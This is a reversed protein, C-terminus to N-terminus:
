GDRALEAIQASELVGQAKERLANLMARGVIRTTLIQNPLVCRALSLVPGLVRYFWRYSPTRSTIGDLPQIVGPRFLCVRAFGLTQLDNETRGKVRAWQSRGQETRDAGAGSVYIFTMGPALAALQTAVALTLSYTIQTYAQETLGSSSVGLCFFCADADQLKAAHTSLATVDDSVIQKLKPDTHELRKRGILVIERVDDDLLCERLVGQGVMGSAGWILIKM